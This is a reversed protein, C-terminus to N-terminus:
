TFIVSTDCIGAPFGFDGEGLGNWNSPPLDTLGVGDGVGWM